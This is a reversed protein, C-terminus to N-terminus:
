QVIKSPTAFSPTKPGIGARKPNHGTRYPYLPCTPIVCERVESAIGGSCELCHQRIARLPTM